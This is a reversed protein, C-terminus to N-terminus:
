PRYTNKSASPPRAQATTSTSAALPSSKSWPTTSNVRSASTSARATSTSDIEITSSGLLASDAVAHPWAFELAEPVINALAGVQVRVTDVVLERIALANGEAQATIWEAAGAAWTSAPTFRHLLQEVEDANWPVVDIRELRARKEM